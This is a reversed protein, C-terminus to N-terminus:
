KSKKSEGKSGGKIVSEIGKPVSTDDKLEQQLQFYYITFLLANFIITVYVILTSSHKSFSLSSLSLPLTGYQGFVTSTYYVAEAVHVMATARVSSIQTPLNGSRLDWSLNIRVIILFLALVM